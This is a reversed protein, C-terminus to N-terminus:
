LCRWWRGRGLGFWRGLQRHGTFLERTTTLALGSLHAGPRPPNCLFFASHKETDSEQKQVVAIYFRNIRGREQTRRWLCEGRRWCLNSSSGWGGDSTVKRHLERARQRRWQCSARARACLRARKEDVSPGLRRGMLPNWGLGLGAVGLWGGYISLM